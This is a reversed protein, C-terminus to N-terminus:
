MATPTAQLMMKIMAMATAAIWTLEMGLGLVVLSSGLYTVFYKDTQWSEQLTYHLCVPKEGFFLTAPTLNIIPLLDLESALNACKSSSMILM